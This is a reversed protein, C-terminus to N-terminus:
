GRTAGAPVGCLPGDRWGVAGAAEPAHAHCATAADHVGPDRDAVRDQARDEARNGEEGM